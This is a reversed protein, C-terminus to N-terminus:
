SVVQSSSKPSMCIAGDLRILQPNMYTNRVLELVLSGFEDPNGLRKPFPAAKGLGEFIAANCDKLKLMPPTAFTGHLIANVRIALDMLDRAMPLVMANVAGKGGGHAVQGDQTAASSTLIISGREIKM